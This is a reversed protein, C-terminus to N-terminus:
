GVAASPVRPLQESADAQNQAAAIPFELTHNSSSFDISLQLLSDPLGSRFSVTTLASGALGM